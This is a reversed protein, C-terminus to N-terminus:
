AFGSWITAAGPAIPQCQFCNISGHLKFLKFTQISARNAQSKTQMESSLGADTLRVPYLEGTSIRSRKSSYVSSAVCEILTDYNLSIVICRNNHWYAILEELWQRPKNMGWVHPDKSKLMLVGRLVLTLDKYLWSWSENSVLYGLGREFDEDFMSKIEAPVSESFKYSRFIDRSLEGNKMLPMEQSVARSFGAGLIFVENMKWNM